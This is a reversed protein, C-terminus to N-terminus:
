VEIDIIKRVMVVGIIQGCIGLGVMLLGLPHRFLLSMYSPNIVGVMGCLAIPLSGVIWGSIRGQATLARIEGRIRIRERVTHAITDLVEALNGGVQRQVLVATVILGLDEVGCRDVMEQLSDEVTAGLSMEHLALAFEEGLPPMIEHSTTEMAQVFSYGAKLSASIVTLADVIQGSLVAQRRKRAWSALPGRAEGRQANGRPRRQRVDQDSQAHSQPADSPGGYRRLRRQVTAHQARFALFLSGATLAASTVALPLLLRSM